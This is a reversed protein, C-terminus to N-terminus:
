MTQGCRIGQPADVAAWSFSPARYCGPRRSPYSFLGNEFVPDVRWLLQSALYKEWMGAIYRGRIQADMMEAIGALAILKDKAETLGTKSYREVVRKWNEHAADSVESPITSIPQRGYRDPILHGHPFREAANLHHCEWAIQHKCFHLVRPAMLREQLVWGRMNAPAKDVERDWFSLDLVHCRRILPGLHQNPPEKALPRPIGETNLAVEDGWLQHPNRQFFLGKESNIAATASINCYSNRYVEYMQTSEALWDDFDDQIICLSDIWIYRVKSSLRRAFHITDRFTLPLENLPIREQFNHLTGKLLRAFDVGGWCHSLTVYHGGKPN